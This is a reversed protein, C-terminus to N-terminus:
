RSTVHQALQLLDDAVHDPQVGLEEPTQRKRNVWAVTLRFSKAGAVDWGNSSVFLIDEKPLGLTRVPLEYVKPDPKYTKLPDVSLVHAFESQLGANHVVARLMEETGNSLIVLPRPHFARLAAPVEPFPTLHLYVSLLSKLTQEDYWLRLHNLTYKLADETVREFDRYRGMLGRLWTYELQKQRWIRSIEAGFGPFAHDCAAVVSQVDFLTGYADFVVARIM